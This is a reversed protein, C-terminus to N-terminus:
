HSPGITCAEQPEILLGDCLMETTQAHLFVVSGAETLVQEIGPRGCKPCREVQGEPWVTTGAPLKTFDEVYQM